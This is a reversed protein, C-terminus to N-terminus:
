WKFKKASKFLVVNQYFEKKKLFSNGTKNLLIDHFEQFVRLFGTKEKRLKISNVIWFIAKKYQLTFNVVYPVAAARQIKRKKLTYLKLGIMPKIKELVEFFFFLASSNLNKKIYFFSLYITKEVLFFKGTFCFKNFFKTLWKSWFVGDLSHSQM